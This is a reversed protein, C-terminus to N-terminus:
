RRCREDDNAQRLPRLGAALAAQAMPFHLFNPTAISVFDVREDDPRAAETVLMEEWSAYARAPDVGFALATERSRELSSSFAGAVLEARGDLQAATRHVKGIFGAGGGGILAMRLKRNLPSNLM